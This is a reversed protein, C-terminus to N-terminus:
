DYNQNLVKVDDKTLVVWKGDSKIIGCPETQGKFKGDVMFWNAKVGAHYALSFREDETLDEPKEKTYLNKLNELIWEDFAKIHKQFDIENELQWKKRFDPTDLNFKIKNKM